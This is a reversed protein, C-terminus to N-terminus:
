NNMLSDYFPKAHILSYIYTSRHDAKVGANVERVNKAGLGKQFLPAIISLEWPVVEDAQGYFNLTPTLPRWKYVQMADLLKWFPSNALYGSHRFEENYLEDVKANNTKTVFETFSIKFEYFDKASEYYKPNIAQKALDKLGDYKEKVFYFNCGASPLFSADSPQVNIMGRNIFGSMDCPAAATVCGAVPIKLEELKHMFAMTNFGGQSWGHIFLPGQSIKLHNLVLKSAQLMDLMAQKNSEKAFFSNPEESLGLGFYDAGIVIYGQSGYQALMLRTEMSSDPVSPVSTKEFVTGHQYSIIPFSDTVAEPIALLGSAITPKNKWEPVVSKYRIRYLKMGYLPKNFGPKFEASTMLAGYLFQDLEGDLISKMKATDYSGILQYSVADSVTTFGEIATTAIPKGEQKCSWFFLLVFLISITKKM